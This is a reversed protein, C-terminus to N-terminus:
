GATPVRDSCKVADWLWTKISILRQNRLARGHRYSPGQYSGSKSLCTEPWYWPSSVTEIGTSISQGHTETPLSWVDRPVGLVPWHPVASFRGISIPLVNLVVSPNGKM